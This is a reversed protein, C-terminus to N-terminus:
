IINEDIVLYSMAADPYDDSPKGIIDFVEKNYAQILNTKIISSIGPEKLKQELAKKITFIYENFPLGQEHLLSYLGALRIKTTEIHTGQVLFAKIVEADTNKFRQAVISVLDELDQHLTKKNNAQVLSEQKIIKLEEKLQALEQKIKNLISEINITM